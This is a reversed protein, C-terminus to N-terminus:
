RRMLRHSATGATKPAFRPVNSERRADPQSLAAQTSMHMVEKARSTLSATDRVVSILDDSRMVLRLYEISTDLLECLVRVAAPLLQRM